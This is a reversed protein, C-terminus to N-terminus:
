GFMLVRLQDVTATGTTGLEHIVLSAAAMAIEMTELLTAEAALAAVINATVADGAGVVDIPGRVPHAAVHAVTGDPLAGVIGREALTVFVPQQNTQAVTKCALSIADLSSTDIPGGLLVGLERANMKFIIQPWGSLGRRSDGLWPQHHPRPLDRISDLLESTVVGTAEVECQELVIVGHSTAAAAALARGLAQRHLAPTPTWNKLDFRSLEEPPRGTRHLLPKTYTFTNRDAVTLFGDLIVGVRSELARRLEWGEGDDGCLGVPRIVGVGLASLNSLIAGAGGPQNRSGTVNHVPLGTELSVEQDAAAVDGDIDLYRDLCFDGAITLELRPYAATIANFRQLNM